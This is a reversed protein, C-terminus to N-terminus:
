PPANVHIATGIVLETPGATPLPGTAITVREATAKTKGVATSDPMPGITAFSSISFKSSVPAMTPRSEAALVKPASMPVKPM